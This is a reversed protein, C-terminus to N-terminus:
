FRFLLIAKALAFLERIYCHLILPTPTKVGIGKINQYGCKKAIKFCRYLHYRNSIIAIRTNEKALYEKSFKFNELTTKSNKEVLLRNKAIGLKELEMQMCSAQSISAGPNQYGSLIATTHPHKKLYSYADDIRLKLSLSPKQGRVIAGPVILYDVEEECTHPTSIIKYFLILFFIFVLILFIKIINCLFIPLNQVFHSQLFVAFFASATAAFLWFSAFSTKLGSTAIVIGYYLICFVSIFFLILSIM